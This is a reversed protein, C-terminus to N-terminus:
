SLLYYPATGLLIYPIMFMPWMMVQQAHGNRLATSSTLFLYTPFPCPSKMMRSKSQLARITAFGVLLAHGKECTSHNFDQHLPQFTPFPSWLYPWQPNIGCWLLEGSADVVLYSRWLPQVIGSKHIASPQVSALETDDEEEQGTMMVNGIKDHHPDALLPQIAQLHKTVADSRVLRHLSEGYFVVHLLIDQYLSEWEVIDRALYRTLKNLHEKFRELLECLLKHFKICTDWFINAETISSDM